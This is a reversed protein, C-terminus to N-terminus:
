RGAEALEREHDARLQARLDIERASSEYAAGVAVGAALLMSALQYGAELIGPM